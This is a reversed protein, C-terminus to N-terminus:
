KGWVESRQGVLQRMAASRAPKMALMGRAYMGVYQCSVRCELCVCSPLHPRALVVNRKSGGQASSSVCDMM